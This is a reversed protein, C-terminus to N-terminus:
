SMELYLLINQRVNSGEWLQGPGRNQTPIAFYVIQSRFSYCYVLNFDLKKKNVNRFFTKLVNGVFKEHNTKVRLLLLITVIGLFPELNESFTESVNRFFTKLDNELFPESADSSALLRQIDLLCLNLVKCM